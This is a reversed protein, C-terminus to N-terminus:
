KKKLKYSAYVLNGIITTFLVIAGLVLAWPRFAGEYLKTAITSTNSTTRAIIFDDFSLVSSVLIVSIISPIMYILYTKFWAKIKSHGLDQAAEFLNNNFKESRPLTLSIGYPLAMITHGVIVRLFGENDVQVIGFFATFVLVLGIATINDPNILPINSTSTLTSKILKNKQRYMAYSTIISITAVLFSVIIALLITNLLALDRGSDLVSVWNDFTGKIWSPNAEGKKTPVNFSFVVGVVLPVYIILLILYVYSRKLLSSVKNM